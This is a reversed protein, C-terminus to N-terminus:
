VMGYAELHRAVMKETTLLERMEAAYADLDATLTGKSIEIVEDAIAQSSGVPIIFGNEGNHVFEGAAGVDTSVVPLGLMVADMMSNSMGERYSACIYINSMNLFEMTEETFGLFHIHNGIGLKDAYEEFQEKLKGGGLLLLHYRSDERLLHQLADILILHGKHHSHMNSTNILVIGDDPIQMDQRKLGTTTKKYREMSFGNYIFDVKGCEINNRSCFYDAVNLSNALYKEVKGGFLMSVLRDMVSLDELNRIGLYMKDFQNRRFCTLAYNNASIYSHIIDFRTGRMTKRIRRYLERRRILRDSLMILKINLKRFDDYYHISGPKAKDSYFALVTIEIESDSALLGKVLELLQYETGGRFLNPTIFLIKKM